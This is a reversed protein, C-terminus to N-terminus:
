KDANALVEKVKKILIGRYTPVDHPRVKDLSDLPFDAVFAGEVPDVELALAIGAAARADKPRGGEVIDLLFKITAIRKNQHLEIIDKTLSVERYPHHPDIRIHTCLGVDYVYTRVLAIEKRTMVNPEQQAEQSISNTLDCPTVVIWIMVLLRVVNIVGRGLLM